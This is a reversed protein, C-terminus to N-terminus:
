ERWESAEEDDPFLGRGGGDVVEVLLMCDAYSGTGMKAREGMQSRYKRTCAKGASSCHLPGKDPGEISDKMEVAELAHYTGEEEQSV